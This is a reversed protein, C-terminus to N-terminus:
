GSLQLSNLAKRTAIIRSCHLCGNTSTGSLFLLFCCDFWKTYVNKRVLSYLVISYLDIYYMNHNRNNRTHANRVCTFFFVQHSGMGRITFDVPNISEKYQLYISDVVNTYTHLDTEHHKMNTYVRKM